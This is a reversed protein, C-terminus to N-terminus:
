IKSRVDLFKSFSSVKSDRCAKYFLTNPRSFCCFSLMKSYHLFINTHEVFISRIFIRHLIIQRCKHLHTVCIRMQVITRNQRFRLHWTVQKLYTYVNESLLRHVQKMNRHYIPKPVVKYRNAFIFIFQISHVAILSYWMM